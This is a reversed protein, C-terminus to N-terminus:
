NEFQMNKVFVDHMWYQVESASAQPLLITQRMVPQRCFAGMQSLAEFVGQRVLLRFTVLGAMSVIVMGVLMKRAWGQEVFRQCYVPLCQVAALLFIASSLGYYIFFRRHFYLGKHMILKFILPGCLYLAVVTAIVPVYRRHTKQNLASIGIWGMLAIAIFNYEWLQFFKTVYAAQFPYAYSTTNMLYYLLIIFPLLFYSLLEQVRVRWVITSSFGALGFALALLGIQFIAATSSLALLVLAGKWWLGPRQTRLGVALILMWLANWLAYPRMEAAYLRVSFDFLFAIEALLLVTCQLGKIWFAYSARRIDRMFFTFILVAVLCTVGNAVLRYYVRPHLGLWHWSERHDDLFKCLVYDLPAPSAQGEPGEFLLSAYTAPRISRKVNFNEDLWLPSQAAALLRDVCFTAVIGVFLLGVIALVVRRGWSANSSIGKCVDNSLSAVVM